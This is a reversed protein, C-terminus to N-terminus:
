IMKSTQAGGLICGQAYPVLRPIQNLLYYSFFAVYEQAKVSIGRTTFLEWKPGGTDPDAMPQCIM